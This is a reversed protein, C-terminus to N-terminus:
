FLLGQHSRDRLPLSCNTTKFYEEIIKETLSNMNKIKDLERNEFYKRIPEKLNQINQGVWFSTAWNKGEFQHEYSQNLLKEAILYNDKRFDEPIFRKLRWSISNQLCTEKFIEWNDLSFKNDPIYTGQYNDPNYRFQYLDEYKNILEPFKNKLNNLFYLAQRDRLTMGGGFLIFDAHSQVALRVMDQVDERSDSLFPVVPMFLVGVQIHPAKEKIRSILSFRECSLPAAPELFKSMESHPTTITIGITCWSTLGIKDLLELEKEVLLSKTAIFVPYHYKLLVELLNRTNKYVMEAPQFSDCTGGIGVIDPLLTRAKKLRDELMISPKKKIVIQEQFKEHLQYKESLSDCYICSFQCGQYPNISYKTWFWHDIYKRVNLISKFEKELYTMTIRDKTNEIKTITSM